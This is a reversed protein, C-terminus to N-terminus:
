IIKIEFDNILKQFFIKNVNIQLFTKIKPINNLIKEKIKESNTIRDIFSKDNLYKIKDMKYKLESSLYDINKINIVNRNNVFVKDFFYNYTKLIEIEKEICKVINNQNIYLM